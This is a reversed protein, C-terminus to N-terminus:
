NINRNVVEKQFYYVNRKRKIRILLKLDNLLKFDKLDKLFNQWIM